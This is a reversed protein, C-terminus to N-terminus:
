EGHCLGDLVTPATTGLYRQLVPCIHRRNGHLSSLKIRVDTPLGTAPFITGKIATIMADNPNFITDQGLGGARIQATVAELDLGFHTCALVALGPIDARPHQALDGAQRLWEQFEPHPANSLKGSEMLGPLGPCSIAIVPNSAALVPDTALKAPYSGSRITTPTGLIRIPAGRNVRAWEAIAHCGPEIIGLVPTAPRLSKPIAEYVATLTNCAIAILDPALRREIEILDARFRKTQIAPALDNYGGHAPKVDVFILEIPGADTASSLERALPAAVTIGGVGSDVIAIKQRCSM